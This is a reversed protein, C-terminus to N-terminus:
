RYPEDVEKLKVMIEELMDSARGKMSPYLDVMEEPDSKIDFLKVLGNEPVQPYGFYYHLKYSDRVLTVSAQTLPEYKKNNTARVVYLNRNPSLQENAFPPLVSGETWSPFNQGTVYALTPLIDIASTQEYIHAGIKRGPEFIMLPIRVVPEYLAESQHGRIGRENMEGHDSTLIIWTDDLLGSAELQDYFRGFEKDCYLIFEDYERRFEPIKPNNNEAFIDQPKEIPTFGDKYFFNYFESTTRYPAHPPLFHFYGLFPQPIESLTGALSDIATELLFYNSAGDRPLGLPFDPKYKEERMERLSEYIQSLFLSYSYGYDRVRLDRIWAIASIDDDNKFLYRVPADFSKLLLKGKPILNELDNQFQNLLTNVYSNHSYALRYYDKFVSFINRTVYRDDVTGNLNFARHTWPLVGTLISATGPTTFNGGAYHNHYVVAREALRALNPTTQRNYGYLSIDYASFADFIIVVVNKPKAQFSFTNLAKTLNPVVLGMSFLGALKLFDRRTYFNKM